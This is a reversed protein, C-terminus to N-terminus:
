YELLSLYNKTLSKSSGQFHINLLYTNTNKMYVRNGSIHTVIDNINVDYTYPNNINRDDLKEFSINLENVVMRLFMMDSFVPIDKNNNYYVIYPSDTIKKFYDDYTLNFLGKYYECIQNLSDRNCFFINPVLIQSNGLFANDYKISNINYLIMNDSDSYVFHEINNRNIFNKLIFWRSFCFKEYSEPNVSVHHYPIEENYESFLHHEISYKNAIGHNDSDGILIIRTDKNYHRTIAFVDDMYDCYGRHIYILVSNM